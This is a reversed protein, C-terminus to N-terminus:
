GRRFLRRLLSTKPAPTIRPKQGDPHFWDHGFSSGLLAGCACRRVLELRIWGINQAFHEHEAPPPPVQFWWVGDLAWFERTGEVLQYRPNDLVEAPTPGPVREPRSM